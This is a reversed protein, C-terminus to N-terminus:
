AIGAWAPAIGTGLGCGYGLAINLGAVPELYRARVLGGTKLPKLGSKAAIEAVKENAAENDGAIFVTAGTGAVKGGGQLVQAFLTNFAKVVYAGPALKQIEEAASTQHGITLGMYDPTLPNTIDIVVKGSLNGISALVAAAADYPIALVVVDAKAAAGKIDFTEIKGGLSAALELGKSTNRAGIVVQYGASSFLGGLGKAMNGTGIIAISM